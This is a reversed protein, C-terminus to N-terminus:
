SLPITPCLSRWHNKMVRRYVVVEVFGECVSRCHPLSKKLRKIYVNVNDRCQFVSASFVNYAICPYFPGQGDDSLSISHIYKNGKHIKNISKISERKKKKKSIFSFYLTWVVVVVPSCAAAEGAPGLGTNQLASLVSPETVQLMNASQIYLHEVSQHNHRFSNSSQDRFTTYPTTSLHRRYVQVLFISNQRLDILVTHTHTHTHTHTKYDTVSEKVTIKVAPDSICLCDKYGLPACSGYFYSYLCYKGKELTPTVKPLTM